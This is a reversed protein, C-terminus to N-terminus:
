FTFWLYPKTAFTLAQELQEGPDEALKPAVSPNKPYGKGDFKLLRDAGGSYVTLDKWGNTKQDLITFPFKVVTFHTILKGESSLLLATCGGSGCWNMGTFGVLLERKGDGNLDTGYYVFRRASSDAGVLEKELIVPLVGKILNATAADSANKEYVSGSISGSSDTDTGVKTTAGETPTAEGSSETRSGDGNKCSTFGILVLIFLLYIKSSMM